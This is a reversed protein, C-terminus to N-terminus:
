CEKEQVQFVDLGGEMVYELNASVGTRYDLATGRTFNYTRVRVIPPKELEKLGCERDIWARFEKTKAMRTFANRRNQEQSREERSEGIAGSPRHIIRVGTERKNQNQGGPGGSRFFQQECDKITITFM